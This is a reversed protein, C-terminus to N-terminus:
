IHILSLGEHALSFQMGYVEEFNKATIEIQRIEGNSMQQDQVSLKMLGSTRVEAQSAISPAASGNVDGTKIGIFNESLHHTSLNELNITETFPWPNTADFIEQDARMFSWSSLNEGFDESVGLILRKLDVLDVASVRRDGNADAAIIKYPSELLAEGVVHRSIFILDITSVGNLPDDDRNVSISYNFGNPNSDFAYHGEDFTTWTKPYESQQSNIIVEADNIALGAETFIDGAIISNSVVQTTDVIMTDIVMTDIVMTDIVMTDIVMTDVVMTDLDMSDLGSCVSSNIGISADCFSGNGDTDWVWINLERFAEFEDCAFTIRAQDDFGEEDPRIPADGAAM